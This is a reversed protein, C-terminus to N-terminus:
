EERLAHAPEIRTARWTPLLCGASAVAGIVLFMLAMLQSDAWSPGFLLDRSWWQSGAVCLAAGALIAGALVGALLLGAARAVVMWAVDARVAGIAMRVGIERRRAAVMTALMSYLGLSTLFLAIASFEAILWTEFRQAGTARGLQMEPGM